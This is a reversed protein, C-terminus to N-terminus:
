IVSMWYISKLIHFPVYEPNVNVKKYDHPLNPKMMEVGDNPILRREQMLNIPRDATTVQQMGMRSFSGSLNNINNASNPGNTTPYSPQQLQQQQQQQPSPQNPMTNNM